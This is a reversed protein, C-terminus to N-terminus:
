CFEAVVFVLLAPALGQVWTLLGAGNDRGKEWVQIEMDEKDRGPNHLPEDREASRNCKAIQPHRETRM